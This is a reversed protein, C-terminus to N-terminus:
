VRDGPKAGKASMSLQNKTNRYIEIPSLAKPSYNNQVFTTSGQDTGVMEGDSEYRSAATYNSIDVAHAMGSATSNGLLRDIDNKGQKLADLDVVPTVVPNFEIEGLVDAEINALTQEM